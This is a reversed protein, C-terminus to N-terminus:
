DAMARGVPQRSEDLIRPLFSFISSDQYSALVAPHLYCKRCAAPRNGLHKATEKVAEVMISKAKTGTDAQGAVGLQRAM